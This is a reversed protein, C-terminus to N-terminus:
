GLRTGPALPYGKLFERVFLRKGSAAQIELISLTGQGTAVWLEDPFGKLVTGPRAEAKAVLPRARFIKLRKLGHFTFAGPWPTMGRIFCDLEPATLNWNIRGDSKSILPAYTAAHHDQSAPTLVDDALQELTKLLLDAGAIALRDHLGAATEHATIPLRTTLLIDGEDLGESIYMTTAGTEKEGNIIAWQIPAAGRYKPLLSAHVNIAGSRPIALLQKKLLRGFAVVILLDPRCGRIHNLFSESHLSDPQLVEYGLRLAVTKIAPASMKRGRGKPRDPQSVVLSIPYNKQHLKELAPVAFEPTGM